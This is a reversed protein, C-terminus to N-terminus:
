NREPAYGVMVAPKVTLRCGLSSKFDCLGLAPIGDSSAPGLDFIEFGRGAYHEFIKVALLNMPRMHRFAPRDGWYILQAVKPATIYIIAAAAITDGSEVVFTEIGIIRSTAEVDAATMHVPYGLGAHNEAIVEHADAIPVGCAFTFGRRRATNLNRRAAPTMVGQLRGFDALAFHYNFDTHLLRAGPAQLLAPLQKAAADPDPESGYFPPPLVIRATCGRHRMSEDLAAAAEVYFDIRQRGASDFAAFPASFPARLNGEPDSGAVLGLRAKGSADRFVLHAVGATKGSNLACFAPSNFAVLPNAFIRSYTDASVNEITM